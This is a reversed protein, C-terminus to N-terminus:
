IRNWSTSMRAGQARPAMMLSSVKGFSRQVELLADRVEPHKSVISAGEALETTRLDDERDHDDISLRPGSPSPAFALRIEGALKAVAPGDSWPVGHEEAALAVGRYLAGTDVRVFNLRNAVGQAVTSKGAGAPGDIAIVPRDRRM